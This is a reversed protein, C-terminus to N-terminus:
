NKPSFMCLFFARQSLPMHDGNLLWSGSTDCSLGSKKQEQACLLDVCMPLPHLVICQISICPPRLRTLSRKMEQRTGREEGPLKGSFFIICVIYM